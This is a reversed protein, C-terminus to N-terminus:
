EQSSIFNDILASIGELARSSRLERMVFRETYARFDNM